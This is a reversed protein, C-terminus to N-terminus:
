TVQAAMCISGAARFPVDAANRAGDREAQVADSSALAAAWVM